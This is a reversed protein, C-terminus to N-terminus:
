RVGGGWTLRRMCGSDHPEMDTEIMPVEFDHQFGDVGVRQLGARMM